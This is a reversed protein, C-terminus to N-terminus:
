RGSQMRRRLRPDLQPGSHTPKPEIAPKESVTNVESAPAAIQQTAAPKSEVSHRWLLYALLLVGITIGSDAINFVAFNFIGPIQFHIFDVVYQRTFRDILNGIAGGLVLGFSVKLLLSGEERMRWYLYAIVAIAIGIFAFKLTQGELMSFAVGTNQVYQLELLNGLVPVPPRLASTFYEVIWRKTLQDVTIVLLAIAVMALDKRRAISM